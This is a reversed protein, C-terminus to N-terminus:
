LRNSCPAWCVRRHSSKKPQSTLTFAHLPSMKGEARDCLNDVVLSSADRSTLVQVEGDIGRSEGKNGSILRALGPIVTAFYFQM